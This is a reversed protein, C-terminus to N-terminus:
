FDSPLGFAGFTVILWHRSVTAICFGRSAFRRVVYFANGMYIVACMHLTTHGMLARTLEIDFEGRRTGM